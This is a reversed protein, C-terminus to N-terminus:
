NGNVARKFKRGFFCGDPFGKGQGTALHTSCLPNDRAVACSRLTSAVCLKPDPQIYLRQHPRLVTREFQKRHRFLLRKTIDYPQYQGPLFTRFLNAPPRKIWGDLTCIRPRLCPSLIGAVSPPPSVKLGV